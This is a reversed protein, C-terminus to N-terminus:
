GEGDALLRRVEVVLAKAKFPKILFANAGVEEANARDEPHGRASIVLIPTKLKMSTRLNECVEFGSVHPLMLDLCILDFKHQAVRALAAHGNTVAEVTLDLQASELIARIMAQAGPDDEVILVSRKSPSAMQPEVKALRSL